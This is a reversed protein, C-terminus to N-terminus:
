IIFSSERWFVCARLEREALKNESGLAPLDILRCLVSEDRLLCASAHVTPNYTHARHGQELTVCFNKRV